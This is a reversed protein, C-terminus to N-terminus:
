TDIELVVPNHSEVESLNRQKYSRRAIYLERGRWGNPQTIAWQVLHATVISLVKGEKFSDKDIKESWIPSVTLGLDDMNLLAKKAKLMSCSLLEQDIKAEESNRVPGAIITRLQIFPNVNRREQETLSYCFTRSESLYMKWFGPFYRRCDSLEQTMWDKELSFPVFSVTTHWVPNPIFGIKVYALSQQSLETKM